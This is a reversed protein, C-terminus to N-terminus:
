AALRMHQASERGGRNKWSSLRQRNLCGSSRMLRQIPSPPAACFIDTVAYGREPGGHIPDRAQPPVAAGSVEVDPTFDRWNLHALTAGPAKMYRRFTQEIHCPGDLRMGDPAGTLLHTGPCKKGSRQRVYDRNVESDPYTVALVHKEETQATSSGRDLDMGLQFLGDHYAM